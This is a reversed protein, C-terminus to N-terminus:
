LNRNLCLQGGQLIFNKDTQVSRFSPYFTHFPNFKQHFHTDNRANTFHSAIWLYIFIHNNKKSQWAFKQLNARLSSFYLQKKQKSHTFIQIFNIFLQKSNAFKQKTTTFIHIFIQKSHTFIHTQATMAFTDARYAAEDTMALSAFALRPKRLRLVKGTMAFSRLSTHCDVNKNISQWAFIREREKKSAIVFFYFAFFLTYLSFNPNLPYHTICLRFKGGGGGWIQM